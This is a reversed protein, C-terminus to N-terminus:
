LEDPLGDRCSSAQPTGIAQAARPRGLLANASDLLTRLKTDLESFGISPAAAIPGEVPRRPVHALAVGRDGWVPGHVTGYETRARARRVQPQVERVANANRSDQAIQAVLRRRVAARAAPSPTADAPRFARLHEFEDM